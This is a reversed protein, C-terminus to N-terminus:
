QSGIGGFGAGVGGFGAGPLGTTTTTAVAGAPLQITQHGRHQDWLRLAGQVDIRQGGAAEAQEALTQLALALNARNSSIIVMGPVRKKSSAKTDDLKKKAFPPAKPHGKADLTSYNSVDIFRAKTVNNADVTHEESSYKLYRDYLSMRPKGSRGEKSKKEPSTYFGGDVWTAIVDWQDLSYSATQSPKKVPTPRTTLYSERATRDAMFNDFAAQNSRGDSALVSADVVFYNDPLGGPGILRTADAQGSYMLNVANIVAARSGAFKYLDRQGSSNALYAQVYVFDPKKKLVSAYKTSLRTNDTEVDFYRGAEEAAKKSKEIFKGINNSNWVKVKKASM